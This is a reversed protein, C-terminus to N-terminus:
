GPVEPGNRQTSPRCRTHHAPDRGRTGEEVRDPDPLGVAGTLNAETLEAGTLNAGSLNAGFLNAGFLNAGTLNARSLDAGSLKAEFLNAETLEARKGTELGKLWDAHQKLIHQM